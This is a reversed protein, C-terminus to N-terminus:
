SQSFKKSAPVHSEEHASVIMTVTNQGVSKIIQKIRDIVPEHDLISEILQEEERKLANGGGINEDDDELDVGYMNIEGFDGFMADEAGYDGFGFDDDDDDLDDGYEGGM